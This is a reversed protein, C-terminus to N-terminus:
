YRGWDPLLRLGRRRRPVAVPWWGHHFGAPLSRDESGQHRYTCPYAKEIITTINTLVLCRPILMAASQEHGYADGDRARLPPIARKTRLHGFPVNQTDQERKADETRNILTLKGRGQRELIDNAIVRANPAISAAIDDDSLTIVTIGKEDDDSANNTLQQIRDTQCRRGFGLLVVAPANEFSAALPPVLWTVGSSRSM